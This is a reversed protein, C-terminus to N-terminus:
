PLMAAWARGAGTADRGAGYVLRGGGIVVVDDVMFGDLAVGATALLARISRPEGDDDWLVGEIAGADGYSTGGVIGDPSVSTVRTRTHGPLPRMAVIGNAESWRFGLATGADTKLCNGVVVSGDANMPPRPTFFSDFSGGLAHCTPNGPLAGLAVFGTAEAARLAQYDERDAGRGQAVLVGHEASAFRVEVSYGAPPSGLSRLGGAESWLYPAANQAIACLGVVTSGDFSVGGPAPGCPADVAESGREATWHFLASDTSTSTTGFVVRGDGSVAVGSSQETESLAGLEVIGTEATWRFPKGNSTGVIVAGDASLDGLTIATAGGLNGIDVMGSARTWHFIPVGLGPGSTGVVVSGDRSVKRPFIQQTDPPVAGPYGLDSIGAERTWSFGMSNQQVVGQMVLMWSGGVLVSGDLSAGLLVTENTISEPDTGPEVVPPFPEIVEFWGIGVAGTAASGGTGGMPSGGTGVAMGGTGPEGGSGAGDSGSSGCGIALAALGFYGVAALRM